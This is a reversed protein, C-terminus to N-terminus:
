HNRLAVNASQTVETNQGGRISRSCSLTFSVLRANTVYAPAYCEFSNSVMTHQYIQFQLANCGTLLTSTKGSATRLVKRESPSFSYELPSRSADLLALRNTAYSTVQTCQRIEKSIKDVAIQSKLGMDAYNTIAVYSRTGFYYFTMLVTALIGALAASVMVEVLTFAAARQRNTFTSKCEM